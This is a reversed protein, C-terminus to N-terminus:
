FSLIKWEIFINRFNKLCKEARMCMMEVVSVGDIELVNIVVSLVVFCKFM